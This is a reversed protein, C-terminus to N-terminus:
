SEITRARNRAYDYYTIHDGGYINPGQIRMTDRDEKPHSPKAEKRHLPLM